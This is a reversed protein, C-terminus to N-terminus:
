ADYSGKFNASKPKKHIKHRLPLGQLPPMRQDAINSKQNM